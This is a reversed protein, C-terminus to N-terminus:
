SKRLSKEVSDICEDCVYVEPGAVLKKVQSQYHGCFSCRLEGPKPTQQGPEAHTHEATDKGVRGLEEEIIEECLETCEDCIYVGPGAILKKVQSQYHGCFSCRLEGPKEIKHEPEAPNSEQEVSKQDETHDATDEEVKGLGENVLEECLEICEDCIHYNGDSSTTIKSVELHAKHCFTCSLRDNKLEEGETRWQEVFKETCQNCIIVGPGAVLRKVLSRPDGCFSCEIEGFKPIKSIFKSFFDSKSGKNKKGIFM